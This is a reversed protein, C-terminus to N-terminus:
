NNETKRKLVIQEGHKKVIAAFFNRLDTYAAPPFEAKNLQISSSIIVKDGSTTVDYVFSGTADLMLHKAPKPLEDLKFGAPVELILTFKESTRFPMEIPDWRQSAIFPNSHTGEGLLPNLYVISADIDMEFEYSLTINEAAEKIGKTKATKYDIKYPLTKEQEKLVQELNGAAIQKRLRLSEYYGPTATYTGILTNNSGQKLHISTSREETLSDSVLRLATPKNSIVRAYGNYCKLPLKGFGLGKESADLLINTSGIKINTIVYNYQSTVPYKYHARGHDRTSILVPYAEIQQNLLASTLLMNIESPSGSKDQYTKNLKKNIWIGDDDNSMLNDRIWTYISTARELDSGQLNLKRLDEELAPNPQNLQLGFDEDALLKKSMGEWDGMVDKPAEDPYTISLLYFDIKSIINRLSSTHSEHKIAPRNSVAWTSKINDGAYTVQNTLNYAGQIPVNFTYSKFDAEYKNVTFNHNGQHVPAFTYLQPVSMTFESWLVPYNVDQFYWSKMQQDFPSILKYSYEIICGEQLNSFTFKKETSYKNRKTEFISSREVKNAQVKGDVLRYTHAQLKEVVEKFPAHSYLPINITAADFGKKALIHIRKHFTYEIRFDGNGVEYNAFGLDFLVVADATTDIQYSTRAFQDATVNGYALSPRTNNTTTQATALIHFLVAVVVPYIKM